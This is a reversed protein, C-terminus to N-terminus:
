FKNVYRSVRGENAIRAPYKELDETTADAAILQVGLM